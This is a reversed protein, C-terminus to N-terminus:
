VCLGLSVRPGRTQNLCEQARAQDVTNERHLREKGGDGGPLSLPTQEVKQAEGGQGCAPLHCCDVTEGLAGAKAARPGPAREGEGEM